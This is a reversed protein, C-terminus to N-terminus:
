WADRPPVERETDAFPEIVGEARRWIREAFGDDKREDVQSM